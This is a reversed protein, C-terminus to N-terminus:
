IYVQLHQLGTNQLLLLSLQASFIQLISTLKYHFRCKPICPESINHNINAALVSHWLSMLGRQNQAFASDHATTIKKSNSLSRKLPTNQIKKKGKIQGCRHRDPAQPMIREEKPWWRPLKRHLSQYSSPSPSPRRFCGKSLFLFKYFLWNSSKYIHLHELASSIAREHPFGIPPEGIRLQMQRASPDRINCDFCTLLM